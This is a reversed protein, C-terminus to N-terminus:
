DPSLLTENLLIVLLGALKLLLALWMVVAVDRTTVVMLPMVAGIALGGDILVGILSIVWGVLTNRRRPDHRVRFLQYRWASSAQWHAPAGNALSSEPSVIVSHGTAHPRRRVRLHETVAGATVAAYGQPLAPPASNEPFQVEFRSVGALHHITWQSSM